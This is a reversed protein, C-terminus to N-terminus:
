HGRSWPHNSIYCSSNFTFATLSARHLRADNFHVGHQRYQAHVFHFLPNALHRTDFANCHIVGRSAGRHAVVFGPELDGIDLRGHVLAPILGGAFGQRCTLSRLGACLRAKTGVGSAAGAEAEGGTAAAAFTGGTAGAATATGAAGATDAGSGHGAGAAAATSAWASRRVLAPREGCDAVSVFAVRRGHLGAATRGGTASGYRVREGTAGATRAPAGCAGSRQRSDVTVLAVRGRHGAKLARLRQVSAGGSAGAAAGM